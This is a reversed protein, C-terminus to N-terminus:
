RKRNGRIRHSLAIMVKVKLVNKLLKSPDIIETEIKLQEEDEWASACVMCYSAQNM